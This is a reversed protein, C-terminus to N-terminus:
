YLFPPEYEVSSLRRLCLTKLYLPGDIPKVSKIHSHICHVVSRRVYDFLCLESEITREVVRIHFLVFSEVSTQSNGQLNTEFVNQYGCVVTFIFFARPM